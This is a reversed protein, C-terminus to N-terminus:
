EILSIRFATIAGEILFDLLARARRNERGDRGSRALTCLPSRRETSVVIGVLLPSCEPIHLGRECACEL